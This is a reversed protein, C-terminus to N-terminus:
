LYYEGIRYKEVLAWNNKENYPVVFLSSKVNKEDDMPVSVVVEPESVGNVLGWRDLMKVIRSLRYYDSSKMEVDIGDLQYMQKFHVIFYRGKKHLIHAQQFLTDSSRNRIGIRTLTEKIKLFDEENAISVEWFEKTLDNM